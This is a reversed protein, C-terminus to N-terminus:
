TVSPVPGAGSSLEDQRYIHVRLIRLRDVEGVEFIYLGATVKKGKAPMGELQKFLWGGISDVEDDELSINLMDSVEELLMRGEVSTIHGKVEISPRYEDFEDRLDGVIEEVIEESTLLGATGGYEDIVIALQSQRKQMLRLVQSIEMSEPVTLIPRIFTELQHEENPDATLLDTIHVFGVIRDKDQLAVPYRTHKTAYVTKMNDAWSQDVFLCDMDIRPLMVERAMRESFEFINDFLALEDKDIHGSKASQNMLIRIEEETHAEHETAPEVGVLRLLRNATGNLVVILPFFLKYFLMLPMSLWLSTKESRQIALSKPALEGLVIHLFTIVAFAVAFSITHSLVADEIGIRGLLPTVLLESVAEEGVWGLGLSALTIGLQTASLYADLKKNVKLAYRARKNGENVLQTLRTQRVKVLAFEAAVFFGNLLVLLLVLLMYWFIASWHFVHEEM